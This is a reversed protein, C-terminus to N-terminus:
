TSVQFHKNRNDWLFNVNIQCASYMCRNGIGEKNLSAREKRRKKM